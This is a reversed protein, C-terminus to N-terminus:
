KQLSWVCSHGACYALSGCRCFCVRILATICVSNSRPGTECGRRLYSARLSDSMFIATERNPSYPNCFELWFIKPRLQFEELDVAESALGKYIFSAYLKWCLPAGVLSWSFTRVIFRRLLYWFEFETSSFIDYCVLFAYGCLDRNLTSSEADLRPCLLHEHFRESVLQLIM